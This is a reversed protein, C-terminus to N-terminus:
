LEVDCTVHKSFRDQKKLRGPAPRHESRSHVPINLKASHGSIMLSRIRGHYKNVGDFLAHQWTDAHASEPFMSLEAYWKAGLRPESALM